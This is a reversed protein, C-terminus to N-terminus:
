LGRVWVAVHACSDIIIIHHSSLRSPRVMIKNTPHENTPHEDWVWGYLSWHIGLQRPM